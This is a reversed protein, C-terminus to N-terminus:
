FNWRYGITYYRLTLDTAPAGSDYTTHSRELGYEAELSLSNKIRYSLRLSPSVLQTDGSTNVLDGTTIDTYSSQLHEKSLRLRTDLTWAQGFLSTNTISLVNGEVAAGSKHSIGIMTLDRPSFLGAGRTQLTYVYIDGTGPIAPSMDIAPVDSINYLRVDGGLQWKSNIQRMLGASYNNTTVTRALALQRIEAPTLITELDSFSGGTGFVANTTQLIPLMRHDVLLNYTMAGSTRWNVQIAGVNLVQYSTDYDFLTSVSHLPDSYRLETGVAERDIQGNVEQRMYYLNGFWHDAVPGADVAAGYFVRSADVNYEQPTGAFLAARWSPSLNYVFQAGDYRGFVGWNTGTMRGFRATYGALKDKTEYYASSLYSVSNYAPYSNDPPDFQHSYTHVDRLIFRNEFRDTLYSATLSLSTSLAAQTTATLMPAEGATPVNVMSRAAGRNYFQSLSGVMSPENLGAVASHAPAVPAAPAPKPATQLAQLRQGVRYAGPGDPYVRLYVQYNLIAQDIKGARDYAVGTYEIADATHINKPLTLIEALTKVAADYQQAIIQDQAHSLLSRAQQATPDAGPAPTKAAVGPAPRAPLAAVQAKEGPTIERLTAQPYRALLKNRAQEASTRDGFVGINLHYEAGQAGTIQVVYVHYPKLEPPLTPPTFQPNAAVDLHVAYGAPSKAPPTPPKSPTAAPLPASAPAPQATTQALSDLDVGLATFQELPTVQAVWADPFQKRVMALMAQAEEKTAFFGLRLFHLRTGAVRVHTQYAILQPYVNKVFATSQQSPSATLTIAYLKNAFRLLSTEVTAPSDPAAAALGTLPVFLWALLLGSLAIRMLQFM